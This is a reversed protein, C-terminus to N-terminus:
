LLALASSFCAGADKVLQYCDTGDAMLTVDDGHICFDINHEQLVEVQTQYPADEVVEDVWKCARLAAYSGTM